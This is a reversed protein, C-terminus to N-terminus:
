NYLQSRQPFFYLTGEFLSFLEIVNSVVVSSFTQIDFVLVIDPSLKKVSQAFASSVILSLYRNSSGPFSSENPIHSYDM